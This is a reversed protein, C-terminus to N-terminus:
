FGVPALNLKIPAAIEQLHASVQSFFVETNSEEITLESYHIPGKSNDVTITTMDESVYAVFNSDNELAQAIEEPFIEAPVEGMEIDTIRGSEDKLYVTVM